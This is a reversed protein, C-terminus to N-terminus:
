KAIAAVRQYERNPRNARNPFSVAIAKLSIPTSIKQRRRMAIRRCTSSSSYSTM